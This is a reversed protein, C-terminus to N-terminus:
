SPKVRGACFGTLAELEHVALHHGSGFGLILRKVSQAVWTGGKRRKLGHELSLMLRDQDVGGTHLHVRDERAQGM